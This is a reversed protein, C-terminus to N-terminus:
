MKCLQWITNASVVAGRYYTAGGYTMQTDQGQRTYVVSGNLYVITHMNHDMLMQYTWQTNGAVYQCTSKTGTAQQTVYQNALTQTETRYPVAPDPVWGGNYTYGAAGRQQNIYCYAAQTFVTGANVTSVDPSWASCSYYGSSNAWATFDMLYTRTTPQSGLTQSEAVPVGVNRIAGTYTESERDQRTRSQNVSCYATQNFQTATTYAAPSPSYTGCGYLGSSNAWATYVPSTAVWTEMTGTADQSNGQNTLTRNENAVGVSVVQNTLHDKYSEARTRTQNL